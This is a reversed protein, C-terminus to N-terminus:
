FGFFTRLIASADPGCPDAYSGSTSGGSWAHGLGDVIYKRLVVAGTAHNKYDYRTYSRCDSGTTRADYGANIDNDDAGDYALDNTQAWQAITQHANKINVVDDSTGHFVLTPIVRRRSGMERYCDTGRDDPDYSSGYKMALSGGTATTAAKYMVGAHSAVKRVHDPYACGLIVAMAGGASLGAAGVRGADVRYNSKVWGIMGAIISPEGSGRHQNATYFWNWCRYSNAWVSQEPYLVLFARSEAQANMRTGAAFDYADQTCGHLMVMLPRASSGDYTSPVYLKFSRTGSANTYSGSVWSGGSHSLEPDPPQLETPARSSDGCAALLLGSLVVAIQELRSM